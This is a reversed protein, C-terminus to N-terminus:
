GWSMGNESPEGWSGADCVVYHKYATMFVAEEVTPARSTFCKGNNHAATDKGTCAVIFCDNDFDHSVSLKYGDTALTQVFGLATMEQAQAWTEFKKKDGKSLTLTVFEIEKFKARRAMICEREVTPLRILLGWGLRTYYEVLPYSTLPHTSQPYNQQELSVMSVTSSEHPGLKHVTYFQSLSM